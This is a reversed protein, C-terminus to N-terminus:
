YRIFRKRGYDTSSKITFEEGCDNCKCNITVLITQTTKKDESNLEKISYSGCNECKTIKTAM